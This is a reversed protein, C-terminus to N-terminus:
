TIDEMVRERGRRLMKQYCAPCLDLIKGDRTVKRWGQEKISKHVADLTDGYVTEGCEDCYVYTSRQTKTFYFFPLAFLAIWWHQFKEALACFVCLTMFNVVVIFYTLADERRSRRM